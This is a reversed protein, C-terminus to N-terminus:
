FSKGCQKRCLKLQQCLRPKYRLLQALRCTSVRFIQEGWCCDLGVAHGHITALTTQCQTLVLASRMLCNQFYTTFLTINSDSTPEPHASMRTLHGRCLYRLCGALRLPMWCQFSVASNLGTEFPGCTSGQCAIPVCPPLM